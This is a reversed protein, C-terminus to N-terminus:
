RFVAIQGHRPLARYIIKADTKPLRIRIAPHYEPVKFTVISKMIDGINRFRDNIDFLFRNLGGEAKDGSEQYVYLRFGNDLELMYNVPERNTTDPLIDPKYESTDKPAVKLMIPEKKTTSFDNRITFPVTLMSSVAYEDAKNLVRTVNIKSIKSKNVEVGSIELIATSDSLNIALCLSDTEAMTIRAQNFAKVRNQKIFASDSFIRNDITTNEPLKFGFESNISSIKAAPSLLAMISYYFVFLTFFASVAILIKKGPTRPPKIEAISVEVPSVENVTLQPVSVIDKKVEAAPVATVKIEANSIGPNVPEPGKIESGKLENDNIENEM